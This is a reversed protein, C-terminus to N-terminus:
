EEDNWDLFQFEFEDENAFNKAQWGPNESTQELSKQVPATEYVITDETVYNPEYVPEESVAPRQKVPTQRKETMNQGTMGQGSVSQGVPRQGVPRQGTVGQGQAGQGTPRQGAVGQGQARQGAPREGVPRQGAARQGAPRQGQTRQSAPRQGATGQGQVRQGGENRMVPRDATKRRVAEKEVENYYASDALDKLKFLLFSGGTALLIVLIVLIVIIIQQNKNEKLTDQLTKTNAEVSAFIQEIDYSNNTTNDLLHWKSDEETYFTEWAKKQEPETTVEPQTEEPAETATGAPVLEGSVTVYDARVFGSVESGNSIFQVQYWDKNDTGTAQGVVTLAMGGQATTVIRSTTSANQRVRVSSSGSIKASVPEVEAVEVLTEDPTSTTPTSATTTTTSPVLSALTTGDTITMLDARIYGVVGGDATVKYWTYGDSGSTQGAVSVKEDQLASGVTESSTSPEKRIKASGATVKGASDALSVFSNVSLGTGLVAMLVFMGAATRVWKQLRYSKKMQM